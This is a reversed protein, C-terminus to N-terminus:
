KLVIIKVSKDTAATRNYVAGDMTITMDANRNLSRKLIFFPIANIRANAPQTNTVPIMPLWTVKDTAPIM